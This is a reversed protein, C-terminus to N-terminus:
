ETDILKQALNGLTALTGESVERPVPRARSNYHPVRVKLDLDENRILWLVRLELEMKVCWKARQIIFSSRLPVPCQYKLVVGTATHIHRCQALIWSGPQGLTGSWTVLCDVAKMDLRLVLINLLTDDKGDWLWLSYRVPQLAARENWLNSM